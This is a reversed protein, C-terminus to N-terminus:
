RHARARFCDAKKKGLLPTRIPQPHMAASLAANTINEHWKSSGFITTADKHTQTVERVAIWIQILAADKHTLMLKHM